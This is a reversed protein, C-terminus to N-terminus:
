VDSNGNTLAIDYITIVATQPIRGYLNELAQKLCSLNSFGDRKADRDDLQVYRKLTFSKIECLLEGEVTKSGLTSITRIPLEWAMPTDIAGPRWRITTTKKGQRLWELYEKLLGFHTRGFLALNPYVAKIVAGAAPLSEQSTFKLYASRETVITELRNLSKFIRSLDADERSVLVDDGFAIADINSTLFLELADEPTEAIPEGRKNMSTNLIMPIGTKENFSKLIRYLLPSSPGSVEQLRSTGDVHVVAPIYSFRDSRVRFAYQMHQSPGKLNFWERAHEALVSPAYPMFDDRQKVSENLRKRTEKKRPDGLISRFGLARPGFESRGTFVGVIRGQSVAEAVLDPVEQGVWVQLSTGLQQVLSVLRNRSLDYEGGLSPSVGEIREKAKLIIHRVFLANGIAQGTDNPAIPVFVRNVPTNDWLRGLLQCNLAVGGAFCLDYTKSENMLYTLRAFMVREIERQAWAAVNRYGDELSEGECRQRTRIGHEALFNEIALESHHPDNLIQPVINGDGAIVFARPWEPGAHGYASLSMTNGCYQSSKWGLFHTVARYFEGVGMALPEQCDRAILALSNGNGLYYTHQERPYEWWNLGAGMPALVTGGADVVAVLAREFPSMFFASCAHSLHHDVRFIRSNGCHEQIFIMPECCSSTALFDVDSRKIGLQSELHLMAGRHGGARKTRVVREEALAFLVTRDNLLCIAGDKLKKGYSTQQENLGLVLM